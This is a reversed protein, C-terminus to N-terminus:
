ECVTSSRTADDYANVTFDSDYALSLATFAPL